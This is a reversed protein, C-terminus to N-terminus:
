KKRIWWQNYQTGIGSNCKQLLTLGANQLHLASEEAQDLFSDDIEIMVSEVGQLTKFGGRLILHEIGDVDIKIFRPAPIGLLRIADDMTMGMTQYEFISNLKDGHQDFDKGFTSLAGGWV